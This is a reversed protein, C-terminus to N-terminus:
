KLSRPPRRLKPALAAAATRNEVKLKALIHRVHDTVTRYSIGLIAAIERDRKGECIWHLVDSERLSLGEYKPIPPATESTFTVQTKTQSPSGPFHQLIAANRILLSAFSREQETFSGGRARTLRLVCWHPSAPWTLALQHQVKRLRPTAVPRDLPSCAAFGLLDRIQASTPERPPKQPLFALPVPLWERVCDPSIVQPASSLPVQTLRPRGEARVQWLELSTTDKPFLRLAAEFLKEHFSSERPLHLIELAQALRQVGSERSSVQPMRSCDISKGITM